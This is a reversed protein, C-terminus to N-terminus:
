RGHVGAACGRVCGPMSFGNPRTVRAPNQTARVSFTVVLVRYPDCRGAKIRQAIRHALVTTKGSGARALTALAGDHEIAWTTRTLSIHKTHEYSFSLPLTGIRSRCGAFLLLTPILFRGLPEAALVFVTSPQFM